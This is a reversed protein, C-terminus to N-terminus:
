EIGAGYYHLSNILEYVSPPLFHRYPRGSAIRERINTASINMQPSDIWHVKALIGPIQEELVGLDLLAGPRHLVGLGALQQVLQRPRNWKPFDRLSDGGILYFLEDGPFQTQLISVTDVAFYPGPRDIEVRSVRFHPYDWIAANLLCLRKEVPSIEHGHKHPPDATLVWLVWGLHLQHLAESALAIHGLHPPDFTGGFIGIRM